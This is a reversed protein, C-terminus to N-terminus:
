YQCKYGSRAHVCERNSTCIVVDICGPVVSFLPLARVCTTIEIEFRRNHENEHGHGHVAAAPAHPRRSHSSHLELHWPPAPDPQHTTGATSPFTDPGRTTAIGSSRLRALVQHAPPHTSAPRSPTWSVYPPVPTGPLLGNSIKSDPYRAGVAKERWWTWGKRTNLM